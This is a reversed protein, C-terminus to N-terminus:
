CVRPNDICRGDLRNSRPDCEVGGFYKVLIREYSKLLIASLCVFLRPYFM